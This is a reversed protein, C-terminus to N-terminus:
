WRVRRGCESCYSDRYRLSGGCKKCRQHTTYVHTTMEYQAETEQDELMAKVRDMANGADMVAELLERMRDSMSAMIGREGDTTGGNIYVRRLEENLRGRQPLHGRKLPRILDNSM